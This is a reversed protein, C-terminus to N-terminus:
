RRSAEAAVRANHRYLCALIEAVALFALPPIESGVDLAVLVEVLDPDERVPVGHDTARAVMQGALEGQGKAVVTPLRDEALDYRLAVAIRKETQM